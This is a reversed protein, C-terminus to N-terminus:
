IHDNFVSASESLGKITKDDIWITYIGENQLDKLFRAYDDTPRQSLVLFQLPDDDLDSLRFDRYRYEALQGIAYRIQDRENDKHIYKAEALLQTDDRTAILDSYETEEVTYGHAALVEEVVDLIREHEQNKRRTDATDRVFSIGTEDGTVELDDAGRRDRRSGSSSGSSSNGGQTSTTSSRGSRQQRTGSDLGGMGASGPASTVFEGDTESAHAASPTNREDAEIDRLRGELLPRLKQIEKVESMVGMPNFSYGTEERMEGFTLINESIALCEDIIQSEEKESAPVNEAADIDGFWYMEEFYILYPYDRGGQLEELWVAEDKTDFGGVVGVGIVGGGADRDNVYEPKTGHFLFVDGKSINEWKSREGDPLGWFGRHYTTLWHEIRGSFKYVPANLLDSNMLQKVTLETSLSNYISTAAIRLHPKVM